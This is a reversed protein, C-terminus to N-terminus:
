AVIKQKKPKQIEKGDSEDELKSEPAESLDKPKEVESKRKIGSHKRSAGPKSQKGVIRRQSMKEGMEEGGEVKSSSAEKRGEEDVGLESTDTKNIGTKRGVPEENSEEATDAEESNLQAEIESCSLEDEDKDVDGEVAVVERPEDGGDPRYEGSSSYGLGEEGRNEDMDGPAEDLQMGEGGVEEGEDEEEEQRSQDRENTQNQNDSKRESTPKTMVVEEKAAEGKGGQESGKKITGQWSSDENRGYKVREQECMDRKVEEQAEKRAGKAIETNPVFQKGRQSGEVKAVDTAEKEEESMKEWAKRPLYRHSIGDSQSNDNAVGDGDKTQWDEATWQDLHKARDDKPGKYTGGSAKYESALM